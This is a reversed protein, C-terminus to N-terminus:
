EDGAGRMPIIRVVDHDRELKYSSSLNQHQFSSELHLYSEDSEMFFLDRYFNYTVFHLPFHNLWVHYRGADLDSQTFTPRGDLPARSWWVQNEFSYMSPVTQRLSWVAFSRTQCHFQKLFSQQTAPHILKLCQLVLALGLALTIAYFGPTRRGQVTFCQVLPLKAIYDRM